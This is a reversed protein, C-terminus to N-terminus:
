SENHVKPSLIWTQIHTFSLVYAWLICFCLVSNMITSIPCTKLEISLLTNHQKNKYQIVFTFTLFPIKFLNHILTWFFHTWLQILCTTHVLPLYLIKLTHYGHNTNHNLNPNLGIWLSAFRALVDDNVHGICPRGILIAFHPTNNMMNWWFLLFHCRKSYEFFNM